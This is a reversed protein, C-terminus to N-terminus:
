YELLENPKLLCLTQATRTLHRHPVDACTARRCCHQQGCVARIEGRGPLRGLACRTGRMGRPCSGQAPRQGPARCRGPASGQQQCLLQQLLLRGHSHLLLHIHHLLRAALGEEWCHWARTLPIQKSRPSHSQEMPVGEKDAGKRTTGAAESDGAAIEELWGCRRQTRHSEMTM